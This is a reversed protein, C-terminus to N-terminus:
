HYTMAGPILGARFSDVFTGDPQYRLILGRQQYDIADTAFIENYKPNIALSYFLHADEAILPLTPLITDYISMSYIGQNLFFLTEGAGDICLSTPSTSIDTFNFTSLINLSEPDIQWLSPYAESAFGGSCLVWLKGDKDLMMSNPEKGVFVSDIVQDTSADIVVLKNNELYSFGYNSWFAAFVKGDALLMQESSCRIDIKGEISFTRTNVISIESEVFDSIYAKDDSVPLVFRPSTLGDITAVSSMDTLDILEIKSSNNVVVWGTDGVLTMTLPVDGLPRQNANYFIDNYIILSDLNLFSLSGNGNGFNGENVVYVGNGYKYNEDDPIQEGFDDNKNCSALIFIFTM